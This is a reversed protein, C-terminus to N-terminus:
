EGEITESIARGVDVLVQSTHCKKEGLMLFVAETWRHGQRDGAKSYKGNQIYRVWPQPPCWNTRM